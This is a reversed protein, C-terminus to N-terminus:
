ALNQASRRGIQPYKDACKSSSPRFHNLCGWLVWLPNQPHCSAHTTIRNGDATTHVDKSHAPVQVESMRLNGKRPHTTFHRLDRTRTWLYHCFVLTHISADQYLVSGKLARFLVGVSTVPLSTMQCKSTAYYQGSFRDNPPSPNLSSGTSCLKTSSRIM